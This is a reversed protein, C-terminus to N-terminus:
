QFKGWPVRSQITGDARFTTLGNIDIVQKGGDPLHFVRPHPCYGQHCDPYAAASGTGITTDIGILGAGLITVAAAARIINPNKRM